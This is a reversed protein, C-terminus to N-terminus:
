PEKVTNSGKKLNVSIFKDMKGVKFGKDKNKEKMGNVRMLIDM